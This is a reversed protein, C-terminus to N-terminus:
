KLQNITDLISNKNIRKGVLKGGEYWDQIFANDFALQLSKECAIRMANLAEDVEINNNYISANEKLIDMLNVEKM